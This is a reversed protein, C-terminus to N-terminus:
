HSSNLRTSKRDRGVEIKLNYSELFNIIKTSFASINDLDKNLLIDLFPFLLGIGIAESFAALLILSVIFFTKLPFEKVIDSLLSLLEDILRINEKLVKKFFNYLM